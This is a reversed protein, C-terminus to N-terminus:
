LTVHVELSTEEEMSETSASSGRNAVNDTRALSYTIAICDRSATHDTILLVTQAELAMKNKQLVAQM